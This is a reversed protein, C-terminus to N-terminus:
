LAAACFHINKNNTNKKDKEAVANNFCGHHIRSSPMFITLLYSYIFLYYIVPFFLSTNCDSLILKIKEFQSSFM